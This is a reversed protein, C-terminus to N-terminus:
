AIKRKVKPKPLKKAAKKGAVKKAVAKPKVAAATKKDDVEIFKVEITKGLATAIRHLMKITHGGYDADELRSIVSHTTGIMEALQKQTLGQETRLNYIIGAIEINVSIYRYYALRKPDDGIYEKILDDLGYPRYKKNM